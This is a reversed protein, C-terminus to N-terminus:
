DNNAVLEENKVTKDRLRRESIVPEENESEPKENSINDVNRAHSQVRARKEPQIEHGKQFGSKKGALKRKSPFPM